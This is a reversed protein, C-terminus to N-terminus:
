QSRRYLLGDLRVGVRAPNGSPLVANGEPWQLKVYFNQNAEIRLDAPSIHYAKGHVNAFALRSQMNAGATSVDSLAGSVAFQAQSPFRGMPAEELYDKSGILLILSGQREFVYQDNVLQAPGQAGFTSPLQAGQAPTPTSPWFEVEITKILFSNNTPVTGPAVLNTDSLTKTAGGLGVGQGQPQQFFTLSPLGNAPYPQFDYLSTRIVEWTENTVSYRDVMEHFGPLGPIEHAYLGPFGRQGSMPRPM